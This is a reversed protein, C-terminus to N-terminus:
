FIELVDSGIRAPRLTTANLMCWITKSEALVKNDREITLRVYREFKAGHSEGVWTEGIVVENAFAPSKYDIEHRLVVWAYNSKLEPSAVYDWHASAVEQIWRVYVVNNAHGLHDIDDESVLIRHRFHTPKM